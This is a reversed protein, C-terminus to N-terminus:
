SLIAQLEKLTDGKKRKLDVSSDRRSDTSAQKRDPDPIDIKYKVIGLRSVRLPESSNKKLWELVWEFSKRNDKLWQRVADNSKGFRSLMHALLDMAKWYQQNIEMANLYAPLLHEVKQVICSDNTSLMAFLIRLYPFFGDFDMEVIQRIIFDMVYVSMSVNELCLFAIIFSQDDIKRSQIKLLTGVLDVNQLIEYEVGGELMILKSNFHLPSSVPTLQCGKLIPKLASLLATYDFTSQFKREIESAPNALGILALLSHLIGSEVLLRREVDGKLSAVKILDFLEVAPHKLIVRINESRLFLGIQVFFAGIFSESFHLPASLKNPSKPPSTAKASRFEILELSELVKQMLTEMDKDGLKLKLQLLKADSAESLDALTHIKLNQSERIQKSNVGKLVSLSSATSKDMVTGDTFITKERAQFVSPDNLVNLKDREEFDKKDDPLDTSTGLEAPCLAGVAFLLLQAITSRVDDSPCDVFTRQIFALNSAYHLIWSACQIDIRIFASLSNLWRSILKGPKNYSIVVDFFHLSFTQFAALTVTNVNSVEFKSRSIYANNAGPQFNEALNIVFDVYTKDYLMRKTLIQVNEHQINRELELLRVDYKEDSESPPPIFPSSVTKQYFLLYASRDKEVSYEEDRYSYKSQVKVM